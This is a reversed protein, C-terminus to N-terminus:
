IRAGKLTLRELTAGERVETCLENEPQAGSVPRVYIEARGTENSQYALWRGDASVSPSHEDFPGGVIKVPSAGSRPFRWIDSNGPRMVVGGLYASGDPLWVGPNLLQGAPFPGVTPAVPM